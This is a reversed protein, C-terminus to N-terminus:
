NWSVRLGIGHQASINALTRLEPIAMINIGPRTEYFFHLQKWFENKKGLRFDIGMPIYASAGFGPQNIYNETKDSDSYDYNGSFSGDETGTSTLKSYSIITHTNICLGASIGIGAYLSCRSDSKTRFILSGDFRIQKAYYDMNYYQTTVSDIYYVDGSHASTLTDYPIRDEKNYSATLNNGSYYSIGLRLLPNAKYKLHDKDRFQLGMSISCVANGNRNFGKTAAFGSLNNYLLHSQPALARFDSLSGNNSQEALFGTQVFVDHISIRSINQTTDQGCVSFSVTLLMLASLIQIKKM